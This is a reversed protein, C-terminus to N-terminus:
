IRENEIAIKLNKKGLSYFGLLDMKKTEAIRPKLSKDYLRKDDQKMNEPKLNKISWPTFKM